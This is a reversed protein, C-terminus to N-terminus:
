IRTHNDIIGGQDYFHNYEQKGGTNKKWIVLSVGKSGSSYGHNKKPTRKTIVSFKM